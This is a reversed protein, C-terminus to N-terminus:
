KGLQGCRRRDLIHTRIYVKANRDEAWDSDSYGHFNFPTHGNYEIGINKMHQPYQMVHKMCNWHNPGSNASFRGLLSVTFALNPRTWLMAYMISGLMCQYLLRDEAEAKAETYSELAPKQPHQTKMRKCDQMVFRYLVEDVYREQSIRIIKKARDRNIEIVLFRKTEGLDTM